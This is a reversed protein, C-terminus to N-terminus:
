KNGQFKLALAMVTTGIVEFDAFPLVHEILLKREGEDFAEDFSRIDGQRLEHKISDWIFLIPKYLDLDFIHLVPHTQNSILTSTFTNEVLGVHWNVRSDNIDPTIGGNSFHNTPLNRWASPLGTFTDFGHWQSIRSDFKRIFYSALYGHAVGYEFVVIPSPDTIEFVRKFVNERTLRLKNGPSIEEIFSRFSMFDSWNRWYSEASDSFRQFVSLLRIVLTALILKPKGSISDKLLPRVM